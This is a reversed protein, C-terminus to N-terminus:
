CDCCSCGLSFGKARGALDGLLLVGLVGSTIHAQHVVLLMAWLWVVGSQLRILFALAMSWHCARYLCRTHSLHRSGPCLHLSQVFFLGCHGSHIVNWWGFIAQRGSSLIEWVVYGFPWHCNPGSREMPTWPCVSNVAENLRVHGTARWYGFVPREM